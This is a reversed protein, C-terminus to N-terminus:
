LFNLPYKLYIFKIQMDCSIKMNTFLLAILIPNQYVAMINLFHHAIDELFSFIVREIKNHANTQITTSPHKLNYYIDNINCAEM